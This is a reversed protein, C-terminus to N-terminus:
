YIFGFLFLSFSFEICNRIKRTTEQLHAHHRVHARRRVLASSTAQRTAISREGAAVRSAREGVNAVRVVVVSVEARMRLVAVAAVAEVATVATDVARTAVRMMVVLTM